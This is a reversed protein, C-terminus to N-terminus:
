AQSHYQALWTTHTGTPVNFDQNATLFANMVANMKNMQDRQKKTKIQKCAEESSFLNDEREYLLVEHDAEGFQYVRGLHGRNAIMNTVGFGHQALKNGAVRSSSYEYNSSSTIPSLDRNIYLAARQPHRKDIGKYSPVNSPQYCPICYINHSFSSHCSKSNYMYVVWCINSVVYEIGAVNQDNADRYLQVPFSIANASYVTGEVGLSAKIIKTIQGKRNSLAPFGQVTGPVVCIQSGLVILADSVADAHVVSLQEDAGRGGGSTSSRRRTSASASASRRRASAEEEEAQPGGAPAASGRIRDSRRVPLDEGNVARGRSDGGNDMGGGNATGGNVRGGENGRVLARPREQEASDNPTRPRANKYIRHYILSSNDTLINFIFLIIFKLHIYM